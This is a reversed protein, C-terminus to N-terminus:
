RATEKEHQAAARYTLRTASPHWARESGVGDICATPKVRNRFSQAWSSAQAEPLARSAIARSSYHGADDDSSSSSELQERRTAYVLARIQGLEEPISIRSNSKTDVPTQAFKFERVQNRVLFGRFRTERDPRLKKVYGPEAEVGDVFLRVMYISSHSNALVVEFAQGDDARVVIRGDVREEALTKQRVCINMHFGNVHVM